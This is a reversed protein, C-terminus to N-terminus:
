KIMKIKPSEIADFFNESEMSINQNEIATIRLLINGLTSRLMIYKM